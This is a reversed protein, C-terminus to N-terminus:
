APKRNSATAIEGTELLMKLRRLERRGQISARGSAKAIWRGLGGTPPVYAILAEVETGRGAPSDRFMVKGETDVESDETSRWAIQENERDNAIPRSVVDRGLSRPDDLTLNGGGLRRSTRWSGPSTGSTAGSAYIENRPRNITM